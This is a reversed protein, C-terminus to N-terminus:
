VCLLDDAADSTYLLCIIGTANIAGSLKRTSLLSGLGGIQVDLMSEPDSSEDGSLSERIAQQYARAQKLALEPSIRDGLEDSIRRVIQNIPPISRYSENDM